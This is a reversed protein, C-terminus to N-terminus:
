LHYVSEDIWCSVLNVLFFDTVRRYVFSLHASFSLLSADGKIIVVVIFCFYLWIKIVLCIDLCSQKRDINIYLHMNILEVSFCM